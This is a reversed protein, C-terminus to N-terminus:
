WWRSSASISSSCSSASNGPASGSMAATSARSPTLSYKAARDVSVPTPVSGFSPPAVVPNAGHTFSHLADSVPSPMALLHMCKGLWLSAAM